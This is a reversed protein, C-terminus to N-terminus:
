EGGKEMEAGCKPCYNWKDTVEQGCRSCYFWWTTTIEDPHEERYVWTACHKMDMSPADIIMRNVLALAKYIPKNRKWTNDNDSELKEQMDRIQNIISDADISKNLEKRMKKYCPMGNMSMTENPIEYNIHGNEDIQHFGCDDKYNACSACEYKQPIPVM